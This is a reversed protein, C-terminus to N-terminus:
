KLSHVTWSGSIHGPFRRPRHGTVYLRVFSERLVSSGEKSAAPCTTPRVLSQLVAQHRGFGGQSQVPARVERGPKTYLRNTSECRGAYKSTKHCSQLLGLIQLHM